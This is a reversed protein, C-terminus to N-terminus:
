LGATAFVTRRQSFGTPWQKDLVRMTTAFGISPLKLM